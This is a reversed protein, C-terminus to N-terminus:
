IVDYDGLKNVSGQAYINYAGLKRCIFKVHFGELAKTLLSAHQNGSQICPVQILNDQVKKHVLHCDVENHNTTKDFVLNSVIHIAAHGDCIIEM